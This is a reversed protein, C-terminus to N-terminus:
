LLSRTANGDTNVLTWLLKAFPWVATKDGRAAAFPNTRDRGGDLVYNRPSVHTEWVADQDTWCNKTCHDGTQGVCLCVCVVNRAVDAAIPRMERLQTLHHPRTINNCALLTLYKLCSNIPGNNYQAWEVLINTPM